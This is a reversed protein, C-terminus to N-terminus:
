VSFERWCNVSHFKQPQLNELIKKITKAATKQFFIKLGTTFKVVWATLKVNLINYNNGGRHYFQCNPFLLNLWSSVLLKLGLRVIFFFKCMKCVPAESAGWKFYMPKVSKWANRKMGWTNKISLYRTPGLSM